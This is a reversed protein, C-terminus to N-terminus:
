GRREIHKGTRGTAGQAHAPQYDMKANTKTKTLKKSKAVAHKPGSVPTFADTYKPKNSGMAEFSGKQSHRPKYDASGESGTARKFQVPSLSNVLGMLGM